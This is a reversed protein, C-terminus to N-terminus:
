CAAKQQANAFIFKLWSFDMFLFFLISFAVEILRILAFLSFALFLVPGLVALPL